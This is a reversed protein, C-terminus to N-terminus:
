GSGTRARVEAIFWWRPRGARATSSIEAVTAPPLGFRRAANIPCYQSFQGDAWCEPLYCCLCVPRWTPDPDIFGRHSLRKHTM